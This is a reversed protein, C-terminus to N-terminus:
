TWTSKTQKLKIEVQNTFYEQELAIVHSYNEGFIETIEESYAMTFIKEKNFDFDERLTHVLRSIFAIDNLKM